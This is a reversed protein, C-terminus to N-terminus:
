KGFMALAEARAKATDDDEKQKRERRKRGGASSVVSVAKAIKADAKTAAAPALLFRFTRLLLAEPQSLVTTSSKVKKMLEDSADMGVLVKAPQASGSAACEIRLFLALRPVIEQLQPDAQPATM